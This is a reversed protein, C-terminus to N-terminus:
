IAAADNDNLGSARCVQWGGGHHDGRRAVRRGTCNRMATSRGCRVSEVGAQAPHRKFLDRWIEAAPDLGNHAPLAPDEGM